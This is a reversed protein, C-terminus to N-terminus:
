VKDYLNKINIGKDSPLCTKCMPLARKNMVNKRFSVYKRDKWISKFPRDMVNGFRHKEYVDFCCAIVDGNCSIVPYKTYQPCHTIGPCGENKLTIDEGEAKTYRSPLDDLEIFYEDELKRIYSTDEGSKDIYLSKFYASDPAIERTLRIFEPVEHANKKTVIFQIKIVPNKLGMEKKRVTLRKINDIVIDFDAGKRISEYTGKTAGDLALVIESLGANLLLDINKHNLFTANTSFASYIDKKTAYDVMRHLDKNVMPEGRWALQITTCFDYTDDIVKKFVEFALNGRKMSEDLSRVWCFECKINCASSPEFTLITPFDNAKAIIRRKIYKLAYGPGFEKLMGKIVALDDSINM